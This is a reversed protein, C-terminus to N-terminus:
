LKNKFLMLILLDTLLSTVSATNQLKGMLLHALIQACRRCLFKSFQEGGYLVAHPEAQHCCLNNQKIGLLQLTWSDTKVGLFPQLSPSNRTSRHLHELSIQSRLLSQVDWNSGQTRTGGVDM